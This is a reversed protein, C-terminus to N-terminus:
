ESVPKVDLVEIIEVKNEWLIKADKKNTVKGRIQVQVMDTPENKYPEAQKDLKELQKNIIVGYIISDTQLVAAGDYFVFQGKLITGEEKCSIFATLILAIFFTKKM